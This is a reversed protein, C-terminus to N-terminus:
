SKKEVLASIHSKVVRLSTSGLDLTVVEDAISKVRGLIGGSTIVEDGPKLGALMNTQDKMKKSQPRIILFYMVVFMLVFPVLGEILTPQQPQQTALQEGAAYLSSFM